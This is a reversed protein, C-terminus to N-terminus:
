LLIKAALEPRCGAEVLELAQHLDIDRRKALLSADLQEYGARLLEEFRWMEALESSDPPSYEPAM